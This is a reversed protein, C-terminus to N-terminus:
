HENQKGREGSRWRKILARANPMPASMHPFHMAGVFAEQFADELAIEVYEVQNALSEAEVRKSRSLLALRAGDGAANGVSHVQEPPVDPFLGVILAHQPDILNGFAGALQVKEVQRIGMKQMLLDAGAYLAAKALQFARVDNQTVVIERGATTEESRALVFEYVRGRKRLRDTAARGNFRGDARLIGSVFLEAIVELIGTGCLGLAPLTVEDSWRGDGIIRFRVALTQPDIRVREIAGGTARMGHSIAAGEFAPGTPSSASLLRQRNGLVIEGNTGVDIVLTLADQRHPATALLVAVNDAGVHGGELPLLHAYAGAAVSHLGIDRAKVDLGEGFVPQFPAQGLSVPNLGLITHHMVSNGVLVVDGIAEAAIGTREAVQSALADIGGIVAQQLKTLGDTHNMAYSVRSMLDDGCTVQPNMMGASDLLEGSELDSLYVAISTSGVDVALGYIKERYGPFFGIVEREDWVLATMRRKSKAAAAPLQRLAVIDASLDSLQFHEALAQQVQEWLTLRGGLPAEPLNIYVLRVAPDTTLHLPMADKLVIQKHLASEPPVTVVVDGIVRAACSLRANVEWGQRRLFKMEASDPPTLHHEVSYIEGAGFTGTEVLVKCKGCVKQGGCISEIGVGLQQAAELLTSGHPVVGSKGAPQFLM